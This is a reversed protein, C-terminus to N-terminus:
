NNKWFNLAEGINMVPFSGLTCVLQWLKVESKAIEGDAAMIAALYGCAYKKQDNSMAALTGLAESIDMIASTALLSPANVDNVGFNKLESAIAIQEIKDVHGDAQAMAIGLKILAALEKGNYTMITIFTTLLGSSM